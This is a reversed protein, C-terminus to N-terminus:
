RMVRLRHRIDVVIIINVILLNRQPELSYPLLSLLPMNRPRAISGSVIRPLQIHHYNLLTWGVIQFHLHRNHNLDFM